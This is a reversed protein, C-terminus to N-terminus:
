LDELIEKMKAQYAEESILGQDRLRKLEKLRQEVSGVSPDPDAAAAGAPASASEDAPLDVVVLAGPEITVWDRRIGDGDKYMAAPSDPILTVNHETEEARSGFNQPYFFQDRQGYLNKKRLPTQVQGFIINLKGDRYFVRGANVRNRRMLAGPSLRRAGIVHFIVDEAPTARALGEALPGALTELETQTFVAAPAVEGDEDDYRLRLLRLLAQIEDPSMSVPHENRGGAGEDRAVLQVTQDGREWIVTQAMADGAPVSLQLAAVCLAPPVATSGRIWRLARHLLHSLAHTM